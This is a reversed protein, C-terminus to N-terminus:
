NLEGDNAHKATASNRLPRRLILSFATFVNWLTVLAYPPIYTPYVRMVLGGSKLARPFVLASVVLLCRAIDFIIGHTTRLTRRVM